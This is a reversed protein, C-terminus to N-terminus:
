TNGVSENISKSYMTQFQINFININNQDNQYDVLSFNEEYFYNQMKGELNRFVSIVEMVTMKFDLHQWCASQKRNPMPIEAVTYIAPYCSNNM